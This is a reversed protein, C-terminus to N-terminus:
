YDTSLTELSVFRGTNKLLLDIMMFKPDKSYWSGVSCRFNTLFISHMLLFSIFALKATMKLSTHMFSFRSGVNVLIRVHIYTYTHISPHIVWRIRLIYITRSHYVETCTYTVFNKLQKYTIYIAIIKTKITLYTTTISKIILVTKLDLYRFWLVKKKKKM